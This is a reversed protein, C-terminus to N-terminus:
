PMPIVWLFTIVFVFGSTTRMIKSITSPPHNKGFTCYMPNQEIGLYIWSWERYALRTASSVKCDINNYMINNNHILTCVTITTVSCAKCVIHCLYSILISIAEPTTKIVIHIHKIIGTCIIVYNVNYTRKNHLCQSISLLTVRRLKCLLDVPTIKGLHDHLKQAMVPHRALRFHKGDQM